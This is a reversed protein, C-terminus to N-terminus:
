GKKFFEAIRSLFKKFENIVERRDINMFCKPCFDMEEFESGIAIDSEYIKEKCYRCLLYVFGDKGCKM